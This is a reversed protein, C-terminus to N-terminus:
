KQEANTVKKHHFPRTPQKNDSTKRHPNKNGGAYLDQAFRAAVNSNTITSARGVGFQIGKYGGGGERAGSGIQM